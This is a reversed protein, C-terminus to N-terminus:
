SQAGGIGDATQQAERIVKARSKGGAAIVMQEAEAQAKRTQVNGLRAKLSDIQSQLQNEIANADAMNRATTQKTKAALRLLAAEREMKQEDMKAAAYKALVRLTDMFVALKPEDAQIRGISRCGERRLNSVFGHPDQMWPLKSANTEFPIDNM